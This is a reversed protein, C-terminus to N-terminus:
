SFSIKNRITIHGLLEKADKDFYYTTSSNTLRNQLYLSILPENDNKSGIINDLETWGSLEFYEKQETSLGNHTHRTFGVNSTGISKKCENKPDFEEITKKILPLELKPDSYVDERKLFMQLLKKLLITDYEIDNSNYQKTDRNVQFDSLIVIGELKRVFVKYICFNTWSRAFYLIDDLVFVNWKEDMSGAFIGVEFIKFEETSIKLDLKNVEYKDPFSTAIKLKDTM